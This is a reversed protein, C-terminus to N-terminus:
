LVVDEVATGEGEGAEASSVAEKMVVFARGLVAGPRAEM